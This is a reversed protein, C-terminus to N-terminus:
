TFQYRGEEFHWSWLSRQDRMGDIWARQIDLSDMVECIVRETEEDVKALM